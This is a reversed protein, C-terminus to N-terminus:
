QGFEFSPYLHQARGCSTLTPAGQHKRTKENIDFTIPCHVAFKAQNSYTVPTLLASVLVVWADGRNLEPAHVKQILSRRQQLIVSAQM